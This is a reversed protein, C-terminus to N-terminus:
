DEKIDATRLLEADCREAIAPDKTVAYLFVSIGEKEFYRGYIIGHLRVPAFSENIGAAPKGYQIYGTASGKKHACGNIYLEADVRTWGDYGSVTIGDEVSRVTFEFVEDERKLGFDELVLRFFDYKPVKAVEDVNLSGDDNFGFTDDTKVLYAGYFSSYYPSETNYLESRMGLRDFAPFNYLVTLRADKGIFRVFGEDDNFTLVKPYWGNDSDFGNKLKVRIGCGKNLSKSDMYASYFTMVVRSRAYPHLAIVALLAFLILLCIKLKKM